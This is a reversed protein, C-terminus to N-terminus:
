CWVLGSIGTPPPDGVSGDVNITQGNSSSKFILMRQQRGLAPLEVLTTTLTISTANTLQDGFASICNAAKATASTGIALITTGTNAASTYTYGTGTFSASTTADSIFDAVVAGVQAYTSSNSTRLSSDGNTVFRPVKNYINCVWRGATASASGADVFKTASTTRVIGVWRRSTSAVSKVFVGNVQVPAADARTTDNTWATGVELQIAYTDPNWFVYVDFVKSASLTSALLSVETFRQLMWVGNTWLAIQDHIYPTYFLTTQALADAITVPVASTLTLRGGPPYWSPSYLGSGGRSGPLVTYAGKYVPIDDRITDNL